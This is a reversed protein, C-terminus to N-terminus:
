VLLNRDNDPDTAPTKRWLHSPDRGVWWVSGSLDPNQLSTSPPALTPEETVTALTPARFRQFAQARHIYWPKNEIMHPQPQITIQPQPFRPLPSPPLSYVMPKMSPTPMTNRAYSNVLIEQHHQALRIMEPSSPYELLKQIATKCKPCMWGLDGRLRSLSHDSKQVIHQCPLLLFYPDQQPDWPQHTIYDLEYPDNKVILPVHQFAQAGTNLPRDIFIDM